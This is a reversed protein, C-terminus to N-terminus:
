PLDDVSFIDYCVPSDLPKSLPTLDPRTRIVDYRRTFEVWRDQIIADEVDEAIDKAKGYKLPMAWSNAARSVLEWPILNDVKPLEWCVKKDDDPRTWDLGIPVFFYHMNALSCVFPKNTITRCLRVTYMYIDHLRGEDVQFPAGSTFRIIAPVGSFFLKTSSLSPLPQRTLILIPAHPKMAEDAHDTAIITPYLSTIAVSRTNPWFDPQKRPYCRTGHSKNDSSSDLLLGENSTSTVRQLEAAPDQDQRATINPPLPFLRYDLLGM